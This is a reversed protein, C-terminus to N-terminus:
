LDKDGSAAGDVATGFASSRFDCAGFTASFGACCVTGLKNRGGYVQFVNVKFLQTIALIQLLYVFSRNLLGGAATGSGLLAVAGTLIHAQYGLVCVM